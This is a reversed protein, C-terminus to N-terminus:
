DADTAYSVVEFEIGDNDRFYFRQGPEYDGFSYTEFGADLVRQQVFALDDVTVGVHNLGGITSYSDETSVSPEQPGYIALYTAGVEPEGVHVSRGGLQSWGDWRTAWGFIDSLMRATRDPDSVTLNLHEITSTM